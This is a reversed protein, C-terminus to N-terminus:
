LYPITEKQMEQMYKSMETPDTGTNIAMDLIEDRQADTPVMGMCYKEILEKLEKNM